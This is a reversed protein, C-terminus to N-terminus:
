PQIASAVNICAQLYGTLSTFTYELPGWPPAERLEAWVRSMDLVTQREELNAAYKELQTPNSLNAMIIEGTM